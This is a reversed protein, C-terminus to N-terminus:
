RKGCHKQKCESPNKLRQKIWDMILPAISRLLDANYNPNTASIDDAMEDYGPINRPIIQIRYSLPKTLANIASRWQITPM